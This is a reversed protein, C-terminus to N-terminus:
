NAVIKERLAGIREMLDGTWKALDERRAKRGPEFRVPEGYIVTVKALRKAQSTGSVYAPVVPAGTM